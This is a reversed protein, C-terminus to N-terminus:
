YTFSGNKNWIRRQELNGVIYQEYQGGSGITIPEYATELTINTPNIAKSPVYDDVGDFILANSQWGDTSDLAFNQLTGDNGNGTLDTWTTAIDSHGSATNNIGDYWLIMDSYIYGEQTTAFQYNSTSNYYYYMTATKSTDQVKIQYGNGNFTINSPMNWVGNYNFSIDNMLTYSMNPAFNYGV